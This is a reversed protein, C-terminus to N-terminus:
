KRQLMDKKFNFKDKLRRLGNEVFTDMWVTLQHIDIPPQCQQTWTLLDLFHQQLETGSVTMQRQIMKLRQEIFRKSPIIMQCTAHERAMKNSIKMASTGNQVEFDHYHQWLDKQWLIHHSTSILHIMQRVSKMKENTDLSCVIQHDHKNINSLMGKLKKNSINLFKPKFKRADNASQLTVKRPDNSSSSNNNTSSTETVPLQTMSGSALLDDSMPSTRKRKEINGQSEDEIKYFFFLNLNVYLDLSSHIYIAANAERRRQRRRRHQEKRNGRSKKKSKQPPQQDASAVENVTPTQSLEQSHGSPNRNFLWSSFSM